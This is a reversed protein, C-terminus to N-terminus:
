YWTRNFRPPYNPLNLNPIAINLLVTSNGASNDTITGSLWNQEVDAKRINTSSGSPGVIVSVPIGQVTNFYALPGNLTSTVTNNVGIVQLGCEASSNGQVYNYFASMAPAIRIGYKAWTSDNLIVTNGIVNCNEYGYSYGAPTDSSNDDTIGIPYNQITNNRIDFNRGYYAYNTTTSSNSKISSGSASVYTWMIGRELTDQATKYRILTNDLVKANVCRKLYISATQGSMDVDYGRASYDSYELNNGQILLNSLNDFYMKAGSFSNDTIIIQNMGNSDRVTNGGILEIGGCMNCTNQSFTIKTALQRATTASSVNGILAMNLTDFTNQSITIDGDLAGISGIGAGLGGTFNCGSIHVKNTNASFVISAEGHGTTDVGIATMREFTCNNIGLGVNNETSTQHIGSGNSDHFYCYSITSGDGAFMTENPMYKFECGEMVSNNRLFVFGTNLTWSWSETNAWRRGNISCNRMVIRANLPNTLLTYFKLVKCGIPYSTALHGNDPLQLAPTFTIVSGVINTITLDNSQEGDAHGTAPSTVDLLAINDGIKFQSASAVTISTVGSLAAVTITTYRASDRLINFDELEVGGTVSPIDVNDKLTYTNSCVGYFKRVGLDTGYDFAAQVAPSSNFTSDGTAGYWDFCIGLGKDFDREFYKGDNRQICTGGDPTCSRVQRFLGSIGDDQVYVMKALSTMTDLTSYNLTTDVAATSDRMQDVINQWPVFANSGSSNDGIPFLDDWVIGGGPVSAPQDALNLGVTTADEAILGSYPGTSVASFGGGGGGGGHGTSGLIDDVEVWQSGEVAVHVRFAMWIRGRPPCKWEDLLQGDYTRFLSDFHILLTDADVTRSNNMDVIFIEGITQSLYNDPLDIRMTDPGAITYNVTMRNYLSADWGTAINSAPNTVTYAVDAHEGNNVGRLQWSLGNYYYWSGRRGDYCWDGTGIPRTAATPTFNSVMNDNSYRVVGYGGAPRIDVTQGFASLGILAFCLSIIYKKMM